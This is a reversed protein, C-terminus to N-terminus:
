SEGDTTTQRIDPTRAHTLPCFSARLARHFVKSNVDEVFQAEDFAQIKIGGELFLTKFDRQLKDMISRDVELSTKKWNAHDNGLGSVGLLVHVKV